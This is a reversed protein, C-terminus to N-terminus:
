TRHKLAYSRFEEIIRPRLEKNLRLFVIQDAETHYEQIFSLFSFAKMENGEELARYANDRIQLVLDQQKEPHLIKPIDEGSILKPPRIQKLQQLVEPNLDQPPVFNNKIIVECFREPLVLNHHLVYHSTDDLWEFVGDSRTILGATEDHVVPCLGGYFLCPGRTSYSTAPATRLYEAVRCKFEEDWEEKVFDAISPYLSFNEGMESWMGFWNGHWDTITNM